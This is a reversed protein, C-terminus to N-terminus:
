YIYTLWNEYKKIKGGVCDAYTEKIKKTIEGPKGSGIVYEKPHSDKDSADRAKTIPAIEAATGSFFAEDAQLFDQKTIPKVQTKIGMDDAVKLLSTRTIGELVSESRDNTILIGDKYIFINEGPGEAVNKELNLFVAEDCGKERAILGGITSQVYIGGLKASMDYQSHHVRRWPLIYVYVGTLANEGLYAGWEWAGVLLEAPSSKPILGLNGYSYFLLPRIYASELNNKKMVLKIVETIEQKSYPSKMKLIGASHIFRDLHEELRFVAPGKPTKYARIGEFVSNGYHLAHTMPHIIAESWDYLKGMFWYKKAKPFNENTFM